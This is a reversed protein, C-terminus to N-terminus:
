ESVLPSFQSALLVSDQLIYRGKGGQDEKEEGNKPGDRKEAYVCESCLLKQTLFSLSNSFFFCPLTIPFPDTEHPLFISSPKDWRRGNELWLFCWDALALM